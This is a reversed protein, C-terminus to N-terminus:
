IRWAIQTVMTCLFTKGRLWFYEAHLFRLMVICIAQPSNITISETPYSPNKESEGTDSALLFFLLFFFSFPGIKCNRLVGRLIEWQNYIKVNCHLDGPSQKHYHKWHSLKSKAQTVPLCFFLLFFFSSAGIKCNRLVGRSIEWQNYLNHRNFRKMGVSGKQLPCNWINGVEIILVGRFEAHGM